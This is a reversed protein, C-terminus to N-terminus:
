IINVVKGEKLKELADPNEEFFSEYDDLHFGKSGSKRLKISFGIKKFPRYLVLYTEGQVEMYGHSQM